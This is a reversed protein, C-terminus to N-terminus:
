EIVIENKKEEKGKFVRVCENPDVGFETGILVSANDKHKDRLSLSFDQIEQMMADETGFDGVEKSVVVITYRHAM